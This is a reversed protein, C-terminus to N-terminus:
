CEGEKKKKYTEFVFYLGNCKVKQYDGSFARSCLMYGRGSKQSILEYVDYTKNCFAASNGSMRKTSLLRLRGYESDGKRVRKFVVNEIVENTVPDFRYRYLKELTSSVKFIFQETQFVQHLTNGKVLPLAETRRGTPVSKVLNGRQNVQPSVPNDNGTRRSQTM